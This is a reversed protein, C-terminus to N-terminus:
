KLDEDEESSLVDQRSEAMVEPLRKMSPTPKYVKTLRGSRNLVSSDVRRMAPVEVEQLTQLYAISQAREAMQHQSDARGLQLAKLEFESESATEPIMEKM